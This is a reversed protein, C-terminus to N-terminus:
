EKRQSFIGIQNNNNLKDFSFHDNVNVVNLGCSQLDNYIEEPYYIKYVFPEDHILNVPSNLPIIYGNHELRDGTLSYETLILHSSTVKWTKFPCKKDFYERNLINTFHKGGVVLSNRINNLIRKNNLDDFYGIAGDYLNLVVDFQERFDIKLADNCIFNCSIGRENAEHIAKDILSKSIDIGLVEFGLEAFHIAHRGKGCGIDLIKEGGKLKLLSCIFEVEKKTQLDSM